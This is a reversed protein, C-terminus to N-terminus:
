IDELETLLQFFNDFDVHENSSKLCHYYHCNQKPGFNHKAHVSQDARQAM